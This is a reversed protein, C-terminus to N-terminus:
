RFDGYMIKYNVGFGVGFGIMEDEIGDLPHKWRISDSSLNVFYEFNDDRIYTLGVALQTTFGSMSSKARDLKSSGLEFSATPYISYTSTKYLPWYYMNEQLGLTWTTFDVDSNINTLAYSFSIRSPQTYEEHWLTFDKALTFKLNYSSYSDTQSGNRNSIEESYSKAGLSLGLVFINEKFDLINKKRSSDDEFNLDSSDGSKFAQIIKDSKDQSMAKTEKSWIYDSSSFLLTSLPLLLLLTKKM